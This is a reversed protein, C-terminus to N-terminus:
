LMFSVRRRYNAIDRSNREMKLNQPVMEEDGNFKAALKIKHFKAANIDRQPDKQM